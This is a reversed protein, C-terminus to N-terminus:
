FMEGKTHQRPNAESPESGFGLEPSVPIDPYLGQVTPRVGLGKM